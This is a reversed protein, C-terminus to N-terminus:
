LGKYLIFMQGHCYPTIALCQSNPVESLWRVTDTMVPREVDLKHGPFVNQQYGGYIHVDDVVIISPKSLYKSFQKLGEYTHGSDHCGDYLFLGIQHNLFNVSECPQKYLTVRSSIGANFINREWEKYVHEGDIFPDIVVAEANNNKLSATLSRGVFTGIELYKENKELCNTALDNLISMLNPDCWGGLKSEEQFSEPFTAGNIISIAKDILM